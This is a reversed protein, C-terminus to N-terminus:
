VETEPLPNTPDGARLRRATLKALLRLLSHEDLHGPRAEDSVVAEVAWVRVALRAPGAARAPQRAEARGQCTRLRGPQPLEDLM